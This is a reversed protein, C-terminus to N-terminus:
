AQQSSRERRMERLHTQMTTVEDTTECQWIGMLDKFRKHSLDIDEVGMLTEMMYKGNYLYEVIFHSM